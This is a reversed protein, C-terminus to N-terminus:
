SADAGGESNGSYLGLFIEELDPEPAALSEVPLTALVELLPGVPGSVILHAREGAVRVEDVGPVGELASPEVPSSFSLEIRRTARHRLGAVSDLAVLEGERIVGVRDAIREVEELRHSSFFVTRGRSRAEAVIAFVEQQVLPDLGSTPEDLVILEPDHMFAQILGVKERNGKSLEKIRRDLSLGLREALPEIRDHGAGGRQGCLFELAQRGTFREWLTLDGPVYGLRAHIHRAERRSDFGLVRLSGESPRLLDLMTRILTTKGAGNPGIFGFAEGSSVDLDIGNLALFSGYRKVLGRIEIANAGPAGM